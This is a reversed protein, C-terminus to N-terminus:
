RTKMPQNVRAETQEPHTFYVLIPLNIPKFIEFVQDRYFM